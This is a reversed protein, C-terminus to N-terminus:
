VAVRVDFNYITCTCVSVVLGFEDRYFKTQMYETQLHAFSDEREDFCAAVDTTLSGRDQLSDRLSECAGDVLANITGLAFNIAKQSFKYREQFTLLFLAATRQASPCSTLETDLVVPEPLEPLHENVAPLDSEPLDSEPNLLNMSSSTPLLLPAADPENVYDQWNPHKRNAHTKFSSYTSGFKFSHLCGKSGCVFHFTAEVSHSSFLHKILDLRVNCCYPCLTCFLVMKPGGPEVPDFPREM